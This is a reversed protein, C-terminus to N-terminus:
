VVFAIAKVIRDLTEFPRPGPRTWGPRPAGAAWPCRRWRAAQAAELIADAEPTIRPPLMLAPM